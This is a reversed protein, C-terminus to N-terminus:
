SSALGVIRARSFDYPTMELTVQDNVEFDPPDNRLAKSIHGVLEKGNPLAIRYTIPSLRALVIAVAPIPKEPM